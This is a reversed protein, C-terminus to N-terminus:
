RAARRPRGERMYSEEPDTANLHLRGIVRVLGRQIPTSKNKPLEWSSL